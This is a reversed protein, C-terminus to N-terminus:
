RLPTFLPTEGDKRMGSFSPSQLVKNLCASVRASASESWKEIEQQCVHSLLLPCWGGLSTRSTGWTHRLSRRFPFGSGGGAAPRSV